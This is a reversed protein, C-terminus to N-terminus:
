LKEDFIFCKLMKYQYKKTGKGFCQNCESYPYQVLGSQNLCKYCTKGNCNSCIIVPTEMLGSGNCNECKYIKNEIM